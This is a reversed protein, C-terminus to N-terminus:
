QAPSAPVEVPVEAPQGGAGVGAPPAAPTTATTATYTAAQPQSVGASELGKNVDAPDAGAKVLAQAVEQAAQPLKAESIQAATPNAYPIAGLIGTQVMGTIAPLDGPKIDGTIPAMGPTVFAYHMVDVKVEKLAYMAEMTSKVIDATTFESDSGSVKQLAVKPARKAAVTNKLIDTSTSGRKYTPNSKSVKQFAEYLQDPKVGHVIAAKVIADPDFGAKLAATVVQTLEMKQLLREGVFMVVSSKPMVDPTYMRVTITSKKVKAKEEPVVYFMTTEGGPKIATIVRTGRIGAIATTTYINIDKNQLKEKDAVITEMVGEVIKIAGKSKGKSVDYMYDEITVKSKPSITITSDDVFQVVAMAQQRTEVLDQNEVGGPVKAMQPQGKGQKSQAVENVVRTFKGVDDALAPAACCSLGLAVVILLLSSRKAQM